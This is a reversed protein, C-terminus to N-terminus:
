KGRCDRLQPPIRRRTRRLRVCLLQPFSDLLIFLIHVLVLINVTFISM